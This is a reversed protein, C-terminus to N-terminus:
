GGADHAAQLVDAFEVSITATVVHVLDPRTNRIVGPELLVDRIAADDSLMTFVADARFVEVPSAVMAVGDISRTADSSRNWARVTHGAKALNRAMASGMRGLGIFGVNM